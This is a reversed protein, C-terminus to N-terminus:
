TLGHTTLTRHRCCVFPFGILKTLPSCIELLQLSEANRRIWAHDFPGIRNLREDVRVARLGGFRECGPADLGPGGAADEGDAAEALRVEERDGITLRADLDVDALVGQALAVERQELQEVEAVEDADLSVQEPRLGILQRDPRRLELEE